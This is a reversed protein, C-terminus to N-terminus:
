WPLGWGGVCVGERWKWERERERERREGGERWRQAPSARTEKREMRNTRVEGPRAGRVSGVSSVRPPPPPLPSSSFSSDRKEWSEMVKFFSLFFSLGSWLLLWFFPCMPYIYMCVFSFSVRSKEMRRKLSPM